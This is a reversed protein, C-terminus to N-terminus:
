TLTFTKWTGAVNGKFDDTTKDYVINGTSLNADDLVTIDTTTLHPIAVGEPKFNTQLSTVLSEFFFLWHPNVMGNENLFPEARPLDPYFAQQKKSQFTM